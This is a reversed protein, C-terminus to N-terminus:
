IVADHDTSPKGSQNVIELLEKRCTTHSNRGLVKRLNQLLEFMTIREKEDGLCAILVTWLEECGVPSSPISNSREEKSSSKGKPDMTAGASGIDMITGGFSWVDSRLTPKRILAEPGMYGLTGRLKSLMMKKGEVHEIVLELDAVKAV